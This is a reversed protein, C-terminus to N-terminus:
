NTPHAFLKWFVKNSYGNYIPAAFCAKVLLRDALQTSWSDLERGVGSVRGARVDHLFVRAHLASLLHFRVGFRQLCAANIEAVGAKYFQERTLAPDSSRQAGYDGALLRDMATALGCTAGDPTLRDEPCLVNVMTETFLMEDRSLSRHGFLPDASQDGNGTEVEAARAPRATLLRPALTVLGTLAVSNAIFDRRTPKKM